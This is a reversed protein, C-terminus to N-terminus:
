YKNQFLPSYLEISPTILKRARRRLDNLKKQEDDFAKQLKKDLKDLYKERYLDSEQDEANIKEERRKQKKRQRYEKEYELVRARQEPSMNARYKKDSVVRRKAREEKSLM